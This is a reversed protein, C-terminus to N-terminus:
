EMVRMDPDDAPNATKMFVHEKRIHTLYEEVTWTLGTETVMAFAPDSDKPLVQKFCRMLIVASRKDAGSILAGRHNGTRPTGGPWKKSLVAEIAESTIQVAVLETVPAVSVVSADEGTERYMTLAAEAETRTFCDLLLVIERKKSM